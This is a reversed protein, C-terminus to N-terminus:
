ATSSSPRRAPCGRTPTAGPPPRLSGSPSRAAPSDVLAVPLIQYESPLARLSSAMAAIPERLEAAIEFRLLEPRRERLVKPM